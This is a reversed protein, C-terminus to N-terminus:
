RHPLRNQDSFAREEKNQSKNQVVVLVFCFERHKLVFSSRGRMEHIRKQPQCYVNKFTLMPDCAIQPGAYYIYINFMMVM